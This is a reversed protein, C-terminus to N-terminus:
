PVLIMDNGLYRPRMDRHIVSHSVLFLSLAAKKKYYKYKSDTCFFFNNTFAFLSLLHISPLAIVPSLRIKNVFIRQYPSAFM